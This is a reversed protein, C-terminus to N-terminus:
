NESEDLKLDLDYTIRLDYVQPYNQRTKGNFQIQCDCIIFCVKEQKKLLDVVQTVYSLMSYTKMYAIGKSDRMFQVLIFSVSEKNTKDHKIIYPKTIIWGSFYAQNKYTNEIALAYQSKRVKEVLERNIEM